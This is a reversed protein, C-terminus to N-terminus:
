AQDVLNTGLAETLRVQLGRLWYRSPRGCQRCTWLGFKKHRTWDSASRKGGCRCYLKPGPVFYRGIEAGEAPDNHQNGWLKLSDKDDFQLIVLYPM